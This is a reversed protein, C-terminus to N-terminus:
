APVMNRTSRFWAVTERLGEDLPVAPEWDLLTRARGIDPRRRVPDDEPLPRYEFSPSVGVTRAVAEALEMITYEGPNGLNVPEHVSSQLLRLIGEVLDAYFCFSRTQEGQGYITLPEGQLAQCIFNPIVRGDLPKMRPGYTNFIRVIRTATGHERHHLSTLMEAFRKSEDYVARVGVPNVNGWYDERQPHVAPDGYVESTSALLFRAGQERALDLLRSTGQVCARVTDFPHRIYEPPSAPCAFHLIADVGGVAVKELDVFAVDDEVMRFRSDAELHAVNERRGTVLSDICSVHHGDRMLRDCLHSGLFGAGGTVIFRM